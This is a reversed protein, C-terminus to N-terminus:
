KIEEFKAYQEKAWKEAASDKYGCIVVDPVVEPNPEIGDEQKDIYTNISKVNKGFRIRSLLCPVGNSPEFCTVHDPVMYEIGNWDPNNSESYTLNVWLLKNLDKSYLAGNKSAYYPNNGDVEIANISVYDNRSEEPIMGSSNLLAYSSIYKVTEPIKLTVDFNGAFAGIVNYDENSKIYGGLRIVSKGDLAAPITITDDTKNSGCYQNICVGDEYDTILYDGVRRKNSNFYARAEKSKNMADETNFYNLDKYGSTKDSIYQKYEEETFGSNREDSCSTLAFNLAGSILFLVIFSLIRNKM